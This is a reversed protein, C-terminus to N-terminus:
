IPLICWFQVFVGLLRTGLRLLSCPWRLGTRAGASGFGYFKNRRFVRM